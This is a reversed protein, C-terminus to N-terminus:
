ILYACNRQYIPVALLRSFFSAPYGTRLLAGSAPIEASIAALASQIQKLLAPAVPLSIPATDPNAGSVCCSKGCACKACSANPTSVANGGPATQVWALLAAFVIAFISKL